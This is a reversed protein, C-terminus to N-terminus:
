SIHKHIIHKHKYLYYYYYHYYYYHLQILINISYTSTIGGFGFTYKNRTKDKEVRGRKHAESSWVDSKAPSPWAQGHLMCVYVYINYITMCISKFLLMLFFNNFMCVYRFLLSVAAFCCRFLVSFCSYMINYTHICIYIYIYVCIYIYIYM